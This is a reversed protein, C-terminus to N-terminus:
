HSVTLVNVNYVNFEFIYSSTCTIVSLQKFSMMDETDNWEM